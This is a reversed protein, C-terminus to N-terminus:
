KEKEQHLEPVLQLQNEKEYEDLANVILASAADSVGRRRERTCYVDLRRRDYGSLWATVKVLDTDDFDRYPRKTKREKKM